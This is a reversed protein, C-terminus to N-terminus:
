ELRRVAKTEKSVVFTRIQFNAHCTTALQQLKNITIEKSIEFIKLLKTDAFLFCHCVILIMYLISFCVLVNPRDSSAWCYKGPSVDM